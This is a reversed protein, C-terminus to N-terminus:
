PNEPTVKAPPQGFIMGAPYRKAEGSLERLNELVGRTDEVIGEINAQQGAVLANVRGLQLPRGNLVAGFGRAALFIEGTWPQAVVAVVPQGDIALALSM